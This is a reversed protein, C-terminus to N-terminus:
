VLILGCQSPSNLCRHSCTGQHTRNSSTEQYTGVSHRSLQMTLGSRCQQTLPTCMNLGSRGDASKAFQGPDKVHCQPLMSNSRVSFILWCAFNVRSEHLFMYFSVKIEKTGRESLSLICFYRHASKMKATCIHKWGHLQTSNGAGGKFISRGFPYRKTNCMKVILCM